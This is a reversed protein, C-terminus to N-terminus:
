KLCLATIKDEIQKKLKALNEPLDSIQGYEKPCQQFDPVFAADEAKLVAEGVDAAQKESLRGALFEHIAIDYATMFAVSGPPLDRGTIRHIYIARVKNQKQTASFYAYAEPDKETDDGILIFNDGEPAGYLEEMHKTKYEFAPSLFETLGRLTLGYAPFREENLLERVKNSLIFPTGSLFMLRDAPSNEGLLFRYLEPMGAFVLKSVVANCTMNDRNSVDTIKVTDDLDSVIIFSDVARAPGAILYVSLIIAAILINRNM